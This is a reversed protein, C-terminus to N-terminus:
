KLSMCSSKLMRLFSKPHNIENFFDQIYAKAIALERKNLYTFSDIEQMIFPEADKFDKMLKLQQEQDDWCFGLYDRETVVKASSWEQPIAYDANVLGSYDFDYPVVNLEGKFPDNSKFFKLNHGASLLWDTNGIMYNFLAVRDLDERLFNDPKFGKMEIEVFDQRQALMKTPEILFGYKSYRLEKKGTDVYNIQLLRVKLSLDTLLNYIRYALYEKLVYQENIKSSRCHTVLKIKNVDEYGDAHIRDTKFNLHIPPFPCHQKRFNGRAKVRINKVISDTDSLHIIWEAPFYREETKAKQKIFSSIDYRLTVVLPEQDEFLRSHEDLTDNISSLYVSDEQATVSFGILFVVLLWVIRM